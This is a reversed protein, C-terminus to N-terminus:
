EAKDGVAEREVTDIVRKKTRIAAQRKELVSNRALVFAGIGGAILVAWGINVKLVNSKGIGKGAMRVICLIASFYPIDIIAYTKLISLDCYRLLQTDKPCM